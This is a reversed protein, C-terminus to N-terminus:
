FDALNKTRYDSLNLLGVNEKAVAVTPRVLDSQVEGGGRCM